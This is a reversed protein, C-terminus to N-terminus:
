ANPQMYTTQLAVLKGIRDWLNETRAKSWENFGSEWEKNRATKVFSPCLWFSNNQQTLSLPCDIRMVLIRDFIPIICHYKGARRIWGRQTPSVFKIEIFLILLDPVLIILYCYM